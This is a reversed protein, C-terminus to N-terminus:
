HSQWCNNTDATASGNSTHLGTNTLTLSTCDTDSVQTGTPTATLAYTSTTTDVSAITITYEPAAQQLSTTSMGLSAINGIATVYANNTYFYNEERGALDQLLKTAETRHGRLVYKQYRPLAIAALVALIVVVVLLEILTFGRAPSPTTKM